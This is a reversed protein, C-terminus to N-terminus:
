VPIKSKNQSHNTASNTFLCIWGFDKSHTNTSKKVNLIKLKENKIKRKRVKTKWKEENMQKGNLHENKTKMKKQWKRKETKLRKKNKM